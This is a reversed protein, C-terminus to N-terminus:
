LGKHNQPNLESHYQSICVMFIFGSLRISEAELKNIKNASWVAKFPSLARVQQSRWGPHQAGDTHRKFPSLARVETSNRWPSHKIHTTSLIPRCSSVYVLSFRSALRCCSELISVTVTKGSRCAVHM